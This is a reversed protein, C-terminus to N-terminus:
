TLTLGGPPCRKLKIACKVCMKDCPTNGSVIEKGCSACTGKSFAPMVIRKECRKCTTRQRWVIPCHNDKSRRAYFNEFGVQCRGYGSINQKCTKCAEFMKLSAQRTTTRGM